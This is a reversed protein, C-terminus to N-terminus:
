LQNQQLTMAIEGLVILEKSPSEEEEKGTAQIAMCNIVNISQTDMGRAITV